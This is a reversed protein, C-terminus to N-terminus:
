LEVAKLIENKIKTYEKIFGKIDVVKKDRSLKLKAIREVCHKLETFYGLYAYYKEGKPNTQEELLDYSFRSVQIEFGNYQIKM